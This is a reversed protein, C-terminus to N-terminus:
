RRSGSHPRSSVTVCCHGPPRTLNADLREVGLGRLIGSIFAQNMECPIVADASSLLGFPCNRLALMNDDTAYPEYGVEDLIESAARLSNETGRLSTRRKSRFDEGVARGRARAARLATRAAREDPRQRQLAELFITAALDYRREPFSVHIERDSPGYYKSTRGAGPGSRGPPRQYWCKVLGLDCLKELHFGALRPSVGTADAIDERTLPDRARRVALYIASRTPGQLAAIADVHAQKKQRM